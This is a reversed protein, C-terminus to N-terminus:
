HLLATWYTPVLFGTVGHKVNDRYGDWDPVVQPVGCAMAEVPALGFSEQVSDSPSVFIDATALYDRRVDDTLDLAFRIRGSIGLVKAYELLVVDYQDEVSGAIVLWLISTNKRVLESFVRLLPTLDAKMPSIKGLYLLVLSESPLSLRQRLKPKDGPKFFDTDVALPILDIRGTFRLTTHFAHGFESSVYDMINKLARQSATSTMILSDCPYTGELLLRLFNDYLMNPHSLGHFLHVVPFMTTSYASRVRQGLAMTDTPLPNFWVKTSFAQERPSVLPATAIITTTSECGWAKMAQELAPKMWDQAVLQYRTSSNTTLLAKLLYVTGVIHGRDQSAKISLLRKLLNESLRSLANRKPQALTAIDRLHETVYISVSM